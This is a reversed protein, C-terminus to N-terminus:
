IQEVYPELRWRRRPHQLRSLAKSEIQRIRERSLNFRVGLQELTMPAEGGLGFYLRLVQAEREALSDLVSEIQERMSDEVVGADPAKQNADALVGLLCGDEDDSFPADLSVVPRTGELTDQIMEVAVGLQEALAEPEPPMKGMQQWERSIKGIRDLLAIRNAPVRVVRSDVALSALIAQRIWWVAYSIFKFGLTGDFREAAEVLGVNGAGILDLLPVGRGRYGRAVTVVFRLNASVLQNRAKQDGQRIRQALGVEEEAPLPQSSAIDRLYRAVNEDERVEVRGM